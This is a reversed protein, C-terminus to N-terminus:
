QRAKLKCEILERHTLRLLNALKHAFQDEHAELRGDSHIIRWVSEMVGMKEEKSLTNNLYRTFRFIDVSDQRQSDSLALLEDIDNRDVAFQTTLTQAIQEMEAASCNGDVHAAELLLVCLAIDAGYTKEEYSPSENVDKKAIMRKIIDLM